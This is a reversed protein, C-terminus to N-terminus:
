IGDTNRTQITINNVKMASLLKRLHKKGSKTIKKSTRKNFPRLVIM